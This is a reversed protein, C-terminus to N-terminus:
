KTPLVVNNPDIFYIWWNNNIKDTIGGAHPLHSLWWKHHTRIDGGGWEKANVQRPVGPMYPYHLWDDCYSRVSRKNGWDYERESNPAFHITGVNAQGPAIQDYLLFREFLNFRRNKMANADRSPDYTWSLFDESHFVCSLISEARHGMDELMEGVDREYNFGLLMFRKPCDATGTLPPANAFFADKGAMVSSLFGVGPFGFLWVEDFENDAVRELLNFEKIVAAYDLVSDQFQSAQFLKLYEQPEYQRGDQVVPVQQAEIRAVFANRDLIQYQVVGHSCEEIDQVFQRALENPRNWGTVELLTQGTEPKVIPNYVIMLVRPQLISVPSPKRARRRQYFSIAIPGLVLAGAVLYALRKADDGVNPFFVAFVTTLVLGVAGVRTLLDAIRKSLIEGNDDKRTM